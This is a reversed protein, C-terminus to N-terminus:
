GNKIGGSRIARLKEVRESIVKLEAEAISKKEELEAIRLLEDQENTILVRNAYEAHYKVFDDAVEGYLHDLALVVWFPLNYYKKGASAWAALDNVTTKKGTERTLNEAVRERTIGNKKLKTLFESFKGALDDSLQQYNLSIRAMM